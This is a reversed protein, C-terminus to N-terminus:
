SELKFALDQSFIAYPYDDLRRDLDPDRPDCKLPRSYSWSGPKKKYWPKLWDLWDQKTAVDIGDLFTIPIYAPVQDPALPEM